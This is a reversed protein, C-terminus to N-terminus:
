KWADEHSVWKKTNNIREDALKSFMMDEQLELSSKILANAIKSSSENNANALEQIDNFTKEDLSVLLRKAAM